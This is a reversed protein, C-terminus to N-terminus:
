SLRAAAIAAPPRPPSGRSRDAYVSTMAGGSSALESLVAQTGDGESGVFEDDAWQEWLGVADTRLEARREVVAV